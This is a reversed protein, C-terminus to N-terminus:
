LAREYSSELAKILRGVTSTVPTPVGLEAGIRAVELCWTDVETRRGAVVDAAMSTVHAGVSRWTRLAHQWVAARDLPAGAAHAVAVIEDFLESLLEYSHADDLVDAITRRMIATLSGVSSALAVKTWIVVDASDSVETPLGADTLARALERVGDPVSTAGRPPGLQTLSQGAATGPSMLTTGPAHQEAGVTTTGPIVQDPKFVEGLLRDNGLGNQVTAVWTDDRVAHRISQIEHSTRGTAAREAASKM